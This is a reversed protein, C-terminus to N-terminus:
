IKHENQKWMSNTQKNHLAAPLVAAPEFSQPGRIDETCQKQISRGQQKPSGWPFWKVFYSALRKLSHFISKSKEKRKKKKYHSIKNM